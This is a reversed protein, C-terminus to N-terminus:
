LILNVEELTVFEVVIDGADDPYNKRLRQLLPKLNKGHDVVQKNFIAVWEEEYKRQLEEYHENFWIYDARFKRLKELIIEENEIKPFHDFAPELTKTKM